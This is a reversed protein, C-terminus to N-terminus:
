FIFKKLNIHKLVTYSSCLFEETHMFVNLNDVCVHLVHMCLGMVSGDLYM